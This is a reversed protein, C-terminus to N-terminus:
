SDEDLKLDIYDTRRSRVVPYLLWVSALLEADKWVNGRQGNRWRLSARFSSNGLPADM